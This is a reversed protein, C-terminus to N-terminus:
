HFIFRFVEKRRHDMSKSVQRIDEKFFLARAPGKPLIRTWLTPYSWLVLNAVAEIELCTIVVEIRKTKSQTEIFSKSHTFNGKVSTSM